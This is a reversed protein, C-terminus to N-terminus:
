SFEDAFESRIRRIPSLIKKKGSLNSFRNLFAHWLGVRGLGVRLGGGLGGLLLVLVHCGLLIDGKVGGIFEPLCPM